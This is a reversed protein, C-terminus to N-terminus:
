SVSQHAFINIYHMSIASRCPERAADIRECGRSFTMAIITKNGM